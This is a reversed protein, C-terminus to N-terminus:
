VSMRVASEAQRAQRLLVAYDDPAVAAFGQLALRDLVPRLRADDGCSLLAERLRRVDEISVGRSAILPPVPTMATSGITRLRAMTAPEHRELLDHVLSDLPGVDIRGALVAEVVSRPTVLPGVWEAFLPKAQRERSYQQLQYLHYRVANYGSQSHHVTWGIRGGFIDQLTEFARDARVLLDTCYCPEGGYRQPQPVPAALLHPQLEASAFPFGCMFVAGLDDRSWLDELPAPAAHDLYTLEVGAKDAVWAFLTRWDSAVEPTVAYMRANAILAM